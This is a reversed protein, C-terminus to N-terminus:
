VQHKQLMQLVCDIGCFDSGYIKTFDIWKGALSVQVTIKLWGDLDEDEKVQRGCRDCTLLIKQTM